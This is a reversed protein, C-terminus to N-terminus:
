RGATLKLRAPTALGAPLHRFGRVPGVYVPCGCSKRDSAISDRYAADVMVQLLPM